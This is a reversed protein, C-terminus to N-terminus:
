EFYRLYELYSHGPQDDAQDPSKEIDIKYSSEAFSADVEDIQEPVPVSQKEQLKRFEDNWIAAQSKWYEVEELVETLRRVFLNRGAKLQSELAFCKEEWDKEPATEDVCTQRKNKVAIQYDNQLKALESEYRKIKNILEIKNKRIHAYDERLKRAEHKWLRAQKKIPETQALLRTAQRLSKELEFQQGKLVNLENELNEKSGRLLQNRAELEEEIKARQKKESQLEELAHALQKELDARICENQLLTEEKSSLLAKTSELHKLMGKKEDDLALTKSELRSLEHRLQQEADKLFQNESLSGTLLGKLQEIKQDKEREWQQIESQRLDIIKELELRQNKIERLESDVQKKERILNLFKNMWVKTQDQSQATDLLSKELREAMQERVTEQDLSVKKFNERENKQDKEVMHLLQRLRNSEFKWSKAENKIKSVQQSLEHHVKSSQELATQYAEERQKLTQDKAKLEAQLDVIAEEIGIKEAQLNRNKKEVAQATKCVELHDFVRQAMEAELVALEDQLFALKKEHTKKEKQLEAVEDRLVNENTQSAELRRRVFETEERFQRAKAKWNKAENQISRCKETFADNQLRRSEELAVLQQQSEAVTREHIDRFQKSEEEMTQLQADKQVLDKKLNLSENQWRMADQKVKGLKRGSEMHMESVQLQLEQIARRAQGMLLEKEQSDRQHSAALTELSIRIDLFTKRFMNIKQWIADDESANGELSSELPNKRLLELAEGRVQGGKVIEDFLNQVIEM